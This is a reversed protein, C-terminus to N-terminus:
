DLQPRQMHSIQWAEQAPLAKQLPIWFASYSAGADWQLSPLVKVARQVLKPVTLDPQIFSASTGSTWILLMKHASTQLLAKVGSELVFVADSSAFYEASLVCILMRSRKITLVVDNTYAGGPLIDRELLCVRYGWQHELVHPLLMEIPAESIQRINSVCGKADSYPKSSLTLGNAVETSPATWVYSVFVDFDKEDGDSGGLQFHSRYILQLELWKVHLIVVAGAFLVFCAFPIWVLFPEQHKPKFKITVSKNGIINSAFCTYTHKLHQPMVEKIISKQTVNVKSFLRGRKEQPEEMLLLTKKEEDGGDNIFWQVKRSINVEFDFSVECLVTHPQGLEVEETMNQFPYMIEPLSSPNLFPIVTVNVARRFIWTVGEETIKRDCFFVGKDREYVENLVLQGNKECHQRNHKWLAKNKKYWVVATNNYCKHGPCLITGPYAYQLMASSESPEYCKLKTKKIVQLTFNSGNPRRYTGSDKENAVFQNECKKSEDGKFWTTSSSEPSSCPMMFVEGEVVKYHQFQQDTHKRQQKGSFCSKSITPLLFHLLLFGTRM